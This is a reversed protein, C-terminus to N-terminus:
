RLIVRRRTINFEKNCSKCNTATADKAWMGEQLKAKNKNSDKLESLELRSVSLQKGLEELTQDQELSHEKLSYYEEQLTAYKKLNM